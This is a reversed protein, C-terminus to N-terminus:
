LMMAVAFVGFLASVVTTASNSIGVIASAGGTYIPTHTVVPTSTNTTTTNTSTTNHSITCNQIPISSQIGISFTGNSTSNTGEVIIELDAAVKSTYKLFAIGSSNTNASSIDKKGAVDRLTAKLAVSELSTVTVNFTEGARAGYTFTNPSKQSLLAATSLGPLLVDKGGSGADSGTLGHSLVLAIFGQQAAPTDITAYTGGTQLIAQLITEDQLTADLSLFGFSVRIGLGGARQVESVVEETSSDEGDTFVIIGTNKGTAGSGSKTLEDTAAKIGSAIYTGGGPLISNIQTVAGAPDGLPYLVTASYDFEVVTVLDAVKGGSAESKSILINDLDVSAALRLDDPDNDAMSGSADIVFGIKRGGNGSGIKGILTAASCSPSDHRAFIKRPYPPEALTPAIFALLLSTVAALKFPSRTRCRV